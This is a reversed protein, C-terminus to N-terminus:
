EGDEEDMGSVEDGYDDGDDITLDEQGGASTGPKKLSKLINLLESKRVDAKGRSKEPTMMDSAGAGAGGGTEAGTESAADTNKGKRGKKPVSGGPESGTSSRKGKTLTPTLPKKTDVLSALNPDFLRSTDVSMMRYFVEDILRTMLLEKHCTTWTLGTYQRSAEIHSLANTGDAADFDISGQLTLEDCIEDYFTQPMSTYSVPEMEHGRRERPPQSDVKGGVERRKTGLMKKKQDFSQTWCDNWPMLNIYGISDGMNSGHYRTRQRHPLVDPVDLKGSPATVQLLTESQKVYGQLSARRQMLCEESYVCYFYKKVMPVLVKKEGSEDIYFNCIQTGIQKWGLFHLNVVGHLITLETTKHFLQLSTRVKSKYDEPVFPPIRLHPQTAAEGRKKLDHWVAVTKGPVLEPTCKGVATAQIAKLM